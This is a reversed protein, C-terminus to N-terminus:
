IAEDSIMNLFYNHIRLDDGLEPHFTSMLHQEERILVPEEEIKSLIKINSSLVKIKPARIFNAKFLPKSFSLIINETFSNIQRGWSNRYIEVNMIKLPKVIADNIRSSMIIAGACTGYLSHKKSYQILDDDMSNKYIMKSMVTSEGGPIILGDTKFLSNSDKVLIHKVNLKNLIKQHLAFDGQFALIGILM